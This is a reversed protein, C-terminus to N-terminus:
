DARAFPDDPFDLDMVLIQFDTRSRLPVFSPESRLDDAGRWGAAAARRLTTMAREAYARGEDNGVAASLTSFAAATRALTDV